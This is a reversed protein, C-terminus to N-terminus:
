QLASSGIGMETIYKDRGRRKMEEVVEGVKQFETWGRHNKDNALDIPEVFRVRLALWQMCKVNAVFEQINEQSGQAYIVGPYGVKAFGSISLESSWRQLSRRKTPSVLHHSTLLAHYDAKEPLRNTSQQERSIEGSCLGALPSAEDRSIGEGNVSIFPVRATDVDSDEPYREPFQVEFFIRADAAKVEFKVQPVPSLLSSLTTTSAATNFSHLLSTWIRSDEPPLAFSFSEGPLLSHQILQLEQLQSDLCM